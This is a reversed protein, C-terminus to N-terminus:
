RKGDSFRGFAAAALGAFWLFWATCGIWLLALFTGIEYRIEVRHTGPPVEIGRFVGDVVYMEVPRGDLTATWGPYVIDTVVLLAPRDADVRVSASQPDYAEFVAGGAVPGGSLPTALPREVVATRGPDFSPDAIRAVWGGPGDDPTALVADGVLFARPLASPNGYVKVPGDRVLDFGEPPRETSLLWRIGLLDVLRRHRDALERLQDTPYVTIAQGALTTLTDFRVTRLPSPFVVDPWGWVMNLSASMAEAQLAIPVHREFGSIRPPALAPPDGLAELAAPRALVQEAPTTPNFGWGFALLDALQLGVVGAVAHRRPLLLLFIAGLAMGVPLLVRPGFPATSAQVDAVIREAKWGYYDGGAYDTAVWAPPGTAPAPRPAPPMWPPVEGAVAALMQAERAAKGVFYERGAAVLRDRQVSIAAHALGAGAWAVLVAIAAGRALRRARAHDPDATSSLAARAGELGAGALFAACFTLLYAFRVPFRFFGMGPILRFIPWVPTLSGLMLLAALAAWATFFGFGTRRRTAGYLALLFGPVGLFFTDEWYNEGNGWYGDGKHHYVRGVDAPREYGFARPLVANVLEQPPLRGQSAFQIDVGGARASHATLEATAYLQPGALVLGLGVGAALWPARRLRLRRREPSEVLGASPYGRWIRWASWTALFFLAYTALQPHFSLLVLAVCLALLLAFLRRGDRVVSDACLLMAPLWPYACYMPLYLLHSVFYGSFGFTVASMAAGSRGLGAQRSFLYMLFGALWTHLLVLLSLAQPGPLLLFLVNLPYLVGTQGDALVPFGCSALDTWVPIRGAAWERAAWVRWPYHHHAIDHFFFTEGLSAAGPYLVIAAAILASAAVLAERGTVPPHSMAPLIRSPSSSAASDAAAATPGGPVGGTSM